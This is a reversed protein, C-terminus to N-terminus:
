TTLAVNFSKLLKDYEMRFPDYPKLLDISETIYDHLYLGASSGTHLLTIKVGMNNLDYIIFEIPIDSDIVTMPIGKDFNYRIKESNTPHPKFFIHDFSSLIVKEYDINSEDFDYTGAILLVKGSLQSITIEYDFMNKFLKHNNKLNQIFSVQFPSIYKKSKINHSRIYMEPSYVFVENTKDCGGIFTALGKTRYKLILIIGKIYNHRYTGYGEEYVINTNASINEILYKIAGFDSDIFLNNVKFDIVSPICDYTDIFIIEFFYKKLNKLINVKYKETDFIRVIFLINSDSIIDSNQVINLVNLLQIPKSCIFLNYDNKNIDIDKNSTHIM